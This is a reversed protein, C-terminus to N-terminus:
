KWGTWLKTDKLAKKVIHTEGWVRLCWVRWDSEEWYDSPKYLRTNMDWECGSKDVRLTSYIDQTFFTIFTMNFTWLPFTKYIICGYFFMEYGTKAFSDGFHLMPKKQSQLHTLGEHLLM